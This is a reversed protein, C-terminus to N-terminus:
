ALLGHRGRRDRARLYRLIREGRPNLGPGDRGVGLAEIASLQSYLRKFVIM